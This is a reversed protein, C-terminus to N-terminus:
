QLGTVCSHSAGGALQGCAPHGEPDCQTPPAHTAPQADGASQPYPAIQTDPCHAGAGGSQEIVPQAPPCIQSGVESEQWGPHMDFACHAGPAMQLVLLECHMAGGASQVVSPQGLPSVQSEPSPWHLSSQPPPFQGVPAVHSEVVFVQSNAQVGAVQV